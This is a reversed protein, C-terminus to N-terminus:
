LGVRKRNSSDFELSSAATFKGSYGANRNDRHDNDGGATQEGKRKIAAQGSQHRTQAGELAFHEPFLLLPCFLPGPVV